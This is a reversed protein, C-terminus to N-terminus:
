AVPSVAAGYYYTYYTAPLWNYTPYYYGFYTQYAAPYYPDYYYVPQAIPVSVNFALAQAEAPRADFLTVGLVGAALVARWITSMSTGEIGPQEDAWGGVNRHGCPDLRVVTGDRCVPSEPYSDYRVQ